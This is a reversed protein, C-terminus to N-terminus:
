GDQQEAKILIRVSTCRAWQNPQIIRLTPANLIVNYVGAVQLVKQIDLPVIDGGLKERRQSEYKAWASEAAAKVELANAGTFLVLEANLAYDVTEPARVSVTDCLPRKKEGSLETQVQALLEREPLGTKTLVTVAVTGGIANGLNDLANAVHVDCIAPSVARAWYQYAGVSGAVSFSEPALLVRERYADDSEVEAGGTPVSINHATMRAGTLSTILTNIQGVAWGNGRLGTELCAAQLDMQPRNPSLQGQEITAFVVDGVSVQTGMPINVEGVFETASFRLTCRAASAELRPTNVDDGCLDLMLGTAFRVHQQRYAENIQQHTLTTRYAFTNILLREIHAPQLTKGTRQEYDAIMESLIKEPNDDVIKVNERQLDKMNM